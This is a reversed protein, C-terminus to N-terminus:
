SGRREASLWRAWEGVQRYEAEPAEDFSVMGYQRSWNSNVIIGVYSLALSAQSIGMARLALHEGQHHVVKVMEERRQIQLRTQHLAYQTYWFYEWPVEILLDRYDLGNRQLFSERFDKLIESSMIQVTHYSSFSPDSIELRRAVSKVALERTAWYRSFYFPDAQLARAETCVVYPRRDPALFDSASFPRIFVLDSDISFYNLCVGMEWFGLKSVGANIFGLNQGKAEAETAYPVPIEEDCVITVCADVFREFLPLDVEPVVVYLKLGDRNHEHFSSVLREVYPLDPAYTKLMLCIDYM